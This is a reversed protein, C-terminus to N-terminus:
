NKLSYYSMHYPFDQSNEHIGEPTDDLIEKMDDEGLNNLLKKKREIQRNIWFGFPTFRYLVFSLFLTGLITVFISLFIDNYTCNCNDDYKTFELSCSGNECNEILLYQSNNEYECQIDKSLDSLQIEECSIDKILKSIKIKTNDNLMLINELIRNMTSYYYKYLAFCENINHKNKKEAKIKKFIYCLNKLANVITLEQNSYENFEIECKGDNGNVIDKTNTYYEEVKNRFNGETPNGTLQLYKKKKKNLWYNLYSCYINHSVFDSNSEFVKYSQRLEILTSNLYSDVMSKNEFTYLKQSDDIDTRNEMEVIFKEIGKIIKSVEMEAM